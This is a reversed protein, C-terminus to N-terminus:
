EPSDKPTFEGDDDNNGEEKGQGKGTGRTQPGPTSYLDADDPDGDESPESPALPTKPPGPPPGTGGSGGAAVAPEEPIAPPRTIRRATQLYTPKRAKLEEAKKRIAALDAALKETTAQQTAAWQEVNHNFSAQEQRRPGDATQIFALADNLRTIQLGRQHDAMTTEANKEVITRWVDATFQQSANAARMLETQIWENSATSDAEQQSYLYHVAECLVQYNREIEMVELDTRDFKDGLARKLERLDRHAQRQQQVLLRVWAAPQHIEVTDLSPRTGHYIEIATQPQELRLMDVNSSAAAPTSPTTM